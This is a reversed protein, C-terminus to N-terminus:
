RQAELVVRGVGARITINLTVNATSYAENVWASGERSLSSVDVDGIGSSVEVRVGVDKPLQVTTEGVGGRIDIEVDEAWTGSLDLRVNGVGVDLDITSLAPTDSVSIMSDGAGLKVDLDTINLGVLDIDQEGAGCEIRLSIPLADSLLLDWANYVSSRLSIQDANPQRVTLRGEGNNVAYHVEPEWDAVNYTFTGELLADAGGDVSLEGVGMRLAIRATEADESAVTVPQSLRESVTVWKPSSTSIRCGLLVALSAVATAAIIGPRTAM